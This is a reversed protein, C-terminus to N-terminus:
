SKMEKEDLGPVPKGQWMLACEKGVERKKELAKDYRMTVDLGELGVEAAAKNWLMQRMKGIGMSDEGERQLVELMVWAMPWRSRGMAERVGKTAERPSVLVGVVGKGRMGVPAGVFAGELERILNPSLKAKFAKCQVLVRLPVPTLVPPLHWTGILDIGADGRGGTRQLNFAFRRLTHQVTYEYYTGIYTTSTPSLGSRTAHALFTPLDHHLTTSSSLRPQSSTITPPDLRKTEDDENTTQDEASPTISSYSFRATYSSCGPWIQVRLPPLHSLSLARLRHSCKTISRALM